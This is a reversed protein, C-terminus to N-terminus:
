LSGYESKDGNWSSTINDTIDMHYVAAKWSHDGSLKKWGIEYNTGKQPKLDPNSIATDSAGYMQAFTPMIFSQSVNAYVTEDSSLKYAYQGSM